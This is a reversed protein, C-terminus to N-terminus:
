QTWPARVASSVMAETLDDDEKRPIGSDQDSMTRFAARPRIETQIYFGLGSRQM